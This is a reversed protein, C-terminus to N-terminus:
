KKRVLVFGTKAGPQAAPNPLVKVWSLPEHNQADSSILDDEGSGLM